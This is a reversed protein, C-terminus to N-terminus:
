SLARWSSTLFQESNASLKVLPIHARLLDTAQMARVVRNDCTVSILAEFCAIPSLDEADTNVQLYDILSAVTTQIAASRAIM